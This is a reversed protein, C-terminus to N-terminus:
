PRKNTLFACKDENFDWLACYERICEQHKWVYEGVGHETKGVQVVTFPCMKGVKYGPIEVRVFGCYKCALSEPRIEKLCNPCLVMGKKAAEEALKRLELHKKHHDECCYYEGTNPDFIFEDKGGKKGCIPCKVKGFIPM